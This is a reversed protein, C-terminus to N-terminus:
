ESVLEVSSGVAARQHVVYGVLVAEVLKVLPLGPEDFICADSIEFLEGEDAQAVLGVLLIQPLDGGFLSVFPRLFIIVHQM